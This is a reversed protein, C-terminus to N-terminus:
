VNPNDPPLGLAVRGFGAGNVDWSVGIHGLGAHIDRFQRQLPSTSFNASGGSTRYLQDAAQASM